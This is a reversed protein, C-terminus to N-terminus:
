RTVTQDCPIFEHLRYGKETYISSQIIGLNLSHTSVSITVAKWLEALYM